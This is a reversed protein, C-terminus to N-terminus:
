PDNVAENIENARETGVPAPARPEVEEDPTVTEEFAEGVARAEEETEQEMAEDADVPESSCGVVLLLAACGVLSCSLTRLNRESVRM